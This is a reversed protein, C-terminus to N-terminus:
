ASTAMTGRVIPPSAKPRTEEAALERWAATDDGTAAPQPAVQYKAKGRPMKFPGFGKGKASPVVAPEASPAAATADIAKRMLEPLERCPASARECLQVPTRGKKDRLDANDFKAHEALVKVIALDGRAAAVHASTQLQNGASEMLLRNLGRMQTHGLARFVGSIRKIFKAKPLLTQVETADAGAELLMRVAEPDQDYTSCAVILPTGSFLHTASISPKAGADLLARVVGRQGLCQSTMAAFHLPTGGFPNVANVYQPFRSLLLQVNEARGAIAAGRFTCPREGLLLLGDREVDAGADMLKEVLSTRAFTMAAMLPSMGEAYTCLKQGLPEKRHIPDKKSNGPVVMKSGKADLLLKVESEPRALLEEVAAEDDMSAALTLLNWGSADEWSKETADDRWGMFRQLRSTASENAPALAGDPMPAGAASSGFADRPVFVPGFAKVLRSLTVDGCKDEYSKAKNSLMKVLTQNVKDKDSNVTFDGRSACLKFMDCPNFYEPADHESKIVMLPMDDGCALKCAAFEMRCWGRKRWSAFDCIHADLSQHQVPPVVVFMMSSREIYSPISDVAAKLQEVLELVRADAPAMQRHDASAHVKANQLEEMSVVGDHNDDLDEVLEASAEQILAGPQPISLYDVWLAMKPLRKAWESGPTLMKYQYVGELMGNSTVDTKGAALRKIQTQLARLQDGAPDPHDFSCWQHSCFIVEMADADDPKIEILKGAALLDQHPVWKDLELFYPVPIAYFGYAERTSVNDLDITRGLSGRVM